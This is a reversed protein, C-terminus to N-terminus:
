KWTLHVKIGVPYYSRSVLLTFVEVTRVGVFQWINVQVVDKVTKCLQQARPSSGSTEIISASALVMKIVQLNEKALVAPGPLASYGFGCRTATELADYLTGIQSTIKQMNLFPYLLGIEEDYVSALRLAEQRPITWLPDASPTPTRSVSPSISPEEASYGAENAIGM